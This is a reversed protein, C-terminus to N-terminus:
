DQHPKLHGEVVPATGQSQDRQRRAEFLSVGAAVSVNLSGADAVMPIRLLEDCRARSLQRLGVGEAGLVLVCSSVLDTQYLPKPADSTMGYVSVGARQLSTMARALNAVKLLPVREAAGVAAKRAAPTLGTGRSRPVIVADAGAAAASRLCAGLNHPDEVGDLALFLAPGALNELVGELTTQGEGVMPRHRAVVGQHVGNGSLRDLTSRPAIQVKIGFSEALTSFEKTAGESLGETLWIEKVALPQARLLAVVAHRGYVHQDRRRRRSM